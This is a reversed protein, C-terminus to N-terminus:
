RINKYSNCTNIFRIRQDMRVKQEGDPGQFTRFESFEGSLRDSNFEGDKIGRNLNWDNKEQEELAQLQTYLESYAKSQAQMYTLGEWELVATKRNFYDVFNTQCFVDRYNNGLRKMFEIMANM